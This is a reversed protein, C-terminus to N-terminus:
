CISKNQLSVVCYIVAVAFRNSIFCNIECLNNPGLIRTHAEIGYHPWITLGDNMVTSANRIPIHASQAFYRELHIALCRYKQPLFEAVM